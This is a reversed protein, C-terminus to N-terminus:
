RNVVQRWPALLPTDGISVPQKWSVGDDSSVSVVSAVEGHRTPSVLVAIRGDATATVSASVAAHRALLPYEV